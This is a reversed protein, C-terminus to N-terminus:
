HFVENLYFEYAVFDSMLESQSYIGGVEGHTM